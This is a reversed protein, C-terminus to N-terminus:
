RSGTAGKLQKTVFHEKPNEKHLTTNRGDTDSCPRPCEGKGTNLSCYSGMADYPIERCLPVAGPPIETYPFPCTKCTFDPM